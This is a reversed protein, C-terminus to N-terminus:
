GANNQSETTSVIGDCSPYAETNWLYGAMEQDKKLSLVRSESLVTQSVDFHYWLEDIQLMVWDYPVDYKTGEVIYCPIDANKCLYAFASSFAMSNSKGECLLSYVTADEREEYQFRGVLYSLALTACDQASDGYRMYNYASSLATATDEARTRLEDKTIDYNFHLEVIRVNGSDPYVSVSIKSCLVSKEPHYLCYTRISKEFDEDTYGSIQLTISPAFEDLAAYILKNAQENGRVSRISAIENASRRYVFDFVVSSRSRENVREYNIYDVAYAGVPDVESLYSVVRKLDNEIDGNYQEFYIQAHETGETMLSILVSRLSYYDDASLQKAQTEEPITEKYSFPDVHEQIHLYDATKFAACGCLLISVAVLVIILKPKM